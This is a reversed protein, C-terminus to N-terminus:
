EKRKQGKDQDHREQERDLYISRKSNAVQLILLGTFLKVYSCLFLPGEWTM